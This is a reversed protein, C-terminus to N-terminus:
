SSTIGLEWKLKHWGLIISDKQKSSLLTPFTASDILQYLKFKELEFWDEIVQSAKNIDVKTYNRTKSINEKDEIEYCNKRIEYLQDNNFIM